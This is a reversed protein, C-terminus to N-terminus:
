KRILTKEAYHNKGSVLSIIYVGSKWDAGVEVTEGSTVSRKMLLQGPMNNISLEGEEGPPLLVRILLTEALRSLVFLKESEASTLIVGERAMVLAFRNNTEGSKAYFRYNPEKTLDQYYHNTKDELYLVFGSPLKTLDIAEFKIWGEKLANIGVPIRTVSDVPYPIGSISLNKANNSLEYLNPVTVDTNMLKLADFESDFNRTTTNDLYLVFADAIANKQDFAATFRLIPRSDFTGSKYTPNIDNTRMANSFTLNGTVPYTGNSVHVFFGQMSPIISSSGNSVGNAWSEYTGSYEDAAGSANFFYIANDINSRSALTWDIPSPYPNGILNFGLTYTRNNNYLTVSQNGNNVSGTMSFTQPNTSSGFNAAYGKMPSLAGNVDTSVWGSYYKTVGIIIQNDENYYYFKPIGPTSSLLSAFSSGTTSVFPSSVYKYGYASSLYRQMHVDGTVEGSGSGDILATKSANSLLTLNGASSLNGLTAKVIDTVNLPGSLTVGAANNITLNMITNGAFAGSPITQASTGKMEITGGSATFTGNNTISGAIQLTNGDVTVSSGTNIAINNVTGQNGTSLIPKSTVDPIQVNTRIDPIGPCNWNTNLNWNTGNTGTWILNILVTAIVESRSTTTCGNYTAEVWYSTTSVPAVTYNNNGTLLPTGGTQASYWSIPRSDSATASLATSGSVCITGHTVNTITPTPTVTATVALRVPSECGNNTLSGYYISGTLLNNTNNVVSGGTAANYWMLTGSGSAVLDSVIPTSSSCFSQSTSGSPTPTTTVTLDAPDALNATNCGSATTAAVTYSTSSTPANGQLIILNLDGGNGTASVPPSLSSGGNKLEYNIGSQSGTITFIVNSVAPNCISANSVALSTTIVPDAAPQTITVNKTNVIGNNDKASIVYSGAPLSAFIGSSQYVTYVADLKYTYPGVGGTASAIIQGNSLGNCTVHTLSADVQIAPDGSVHVNDFERYETGGDQMSLIKIQLSSGNPVNSCSTGTWNGTMNGNNTFQTYAGGNVSYWLQIYDGPTDLALQGTTTVSINLNTYSSIDISRSLFYNGTNTNTTVRMASGSINYASGGSITYGGNVSTGDFNERYINSTNTPCTASYNVTVTANCTSVNSALDTVTLVVNNIGVNSANFSSKDLSLILSGPSTCNDSSGNNINAPTITANGNGDLTVSINQCVATPPTVDAVAGVTVLKTNSCGHTVDTVTVTYNGAALNTATATTQVPVSNWSYSFTPTPSTGPSSATVTASGNSGGCSADSIAGTTIVPAPFVEISGTSATTSCGNTATVVVNFFQSTYSSVVATYVPNSITSSSLDTSPNWLYSSVPLGNTVTANLQVTNGNCSAYSIPTVAVVPKTKVTLVMQDTGACSTLAANAAVTLTFTYTGPPVTNKVTPNAVLNNVLFDTISGSSVAWSYYVGGSGNLQVGSAGECMSIDSGANATLPTIAPIIINSETISNCSLLDKVTVSHNDGVIDSGDPLTATITFVNSSQFTGNDLKFQYDNPNLGNQMNVTITAMPNGSSQCQIVSVSSTTIQPVDIITVTKEYFTQVVACPCSNDVRFIITENGEINGDSQAKYYYDAFNQGSPITVTTPFIGGSIINGGSDTYVYDGGNTATGALIIPFSFPQSNDAGTARSFRIFSGVCGEYMSSADGGLNSDIQSSISIENSTFSGAELFVGSDWKQDNVDAIVIKIHYTACATVPHSATLVSTRGDFAIDTGGNGGTYEIQRRGNLGNVFRDQFHGNDVYYTANLPSNANAQPTIRYYYRNPTTGFYGNVDDNIQAFPHGFGSASPVLAQLEAPYNTVYNYGQGHVTNISVPTSTSPILAINKTGTIGPGSLLFAFADNSAAAVFEAYEESAFIYNFQLTNGAPIFDFELVAADQSTGGSIANIDADGVGGNQSSTGFDKNPGEADAVNGTSLVIGEAIPFSSSGSTFHGIQSAAGSFTINNAKLCGTVLVNQVLEAPTYGNEPAQRNVSISNVPASDNDTNTVSVDQANIGNYNLDTSTAAATIVSYAIDGDVLADDVGTITVNQPTSWNATTFTLSATSVTGESTDSSSIGIVVNATPATNLVVTFGAQVGSESTVLGSVQNISIGPSDNDTITATHVTTAGLTANTPSGMTVIITENPDTLIDNVIAISISATTSGASITIPSTTITYDTGGGTATGTVAFPVTVIQSSAASLQATITMSGSETASSQTAATFSVTPAPDDDTITATHVTIAGQTAFTPNGMNLIVTENPEDLADPAITITATGTLNGAAITIPSATISYDTGGGTATGTLTFPVTITNGSVSSLQATVILTGTENVSAQAATTFSVSIKRQAVAFSGFGTVGTLQISNSTKTGVTPYSWASGSYLGGELNATSTGADLDGTAFHLTPSYSTFVTGGNSLTYTRNVSLTPDLISTGINVHEAGTTSATVNGPTTVNTFSLNVPTYNTADGIFFDKSPSGTNVPLQLNGFVWGNTRSVTAASMVNAGTIIVGNTLSLNGSVTKSSGITVGSSNDIIVGGTGSWTAPFETGTSQQASGKYQLTSSVGYTAVTGTTTATGEMSLIGNVGAGTTTKAGSGSLILNNYNVQAIIQNGTANWEVTGTSAIFAGGTGSADGGIQLLSSGGNLTGNTRTWNGSFNHTLGTGLHLTGASGNITLGAGSVAGQLTATGSAKTMTVLGATTFGDISQSVMTNAIEITSSNANLTGGNNIFDGGFTLQFNSASSNLTAGSNITLPVSSNFSKAGNLTVTGGNIVVGGTAAFPTIWEPGATHTSNYQLKASSGFTPAVTATATGDMTLTGNVQTTATTKVGSGSLVLNYYTKTGVTQNGALSYNVTGTGANLTVWPFTSRKCDYTGSNLNLTTATTIAFGADNFLSNPTIDALTLTTITLAALPTIGAPNNSKLINYNYGAITQPSSGNCNVTGTSKTFTGGASLNGGLNLTGSGLFSLRANAVTGSFTINETINITGTSVSVLCIRSSVGGPIAINAASLTGTVVAISSTSNGGPANMTINGLVNLTGPSAMTIGNAATTANITISNCVAGATNVTVTRGSNIVVDDSATPVAAGGWTATSNWNGTVSATRVASQAFSVTLSFLLLLLFKQVRPVFGETRFSRKQLPPCGGELSRCYREGHLPLHICGVVDSPHYGFFGFYDFNGMDNV